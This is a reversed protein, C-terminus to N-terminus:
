VNRLIIISERLYNRLNRDKLTKLQQSSTTLKRAIKIEISKFGAEQSLRTLLLDTPVPINAYSSNGVVIICLGDEKLVEHLRKMCLFMDDFYGQIMVPIVNSWLKRSRVKEIIDDLLSCKWIKTPKWEVLNHSRLTRERLAKFEKYNKVFDLFWLELKYVETYDFTNLYPPSFIALDLPMNREISKLDLERTDLTFVKGETKQVNTSTNLQILDAQIAKLKKLFTDKVPSITKKRFKLSKGEKRVLSVDELISALGLLLLNRTLEDEVQLVVEKYTLIQSLVDPNYVRRFSSLEPSKIGPKNESSVEKLKEIQKGLKEADYKFWDLKVREVFTFFPNIDIGIPMMGRWQCALLTTGSGAFPDLVTSGKKVDFEALMNGILQDSYSEKFYYWRHIPTTETTKSNILGKLDHAENTKVQLEKEFSIYSRLIGAIDDDMDM